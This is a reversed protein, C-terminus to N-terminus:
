GDFVGLALDALMRGHSGSDTVLGAVLEGGSAPEFGAFQFDHLELWARARAPTFQARSLRISQIAKPGGGALSGVVAEVGAALEIRRLTGSEFEVPERLRAAHELPFPVGAGRRDIGRWVELERVPFSGLPVRGEFEAGGGPELYALTAHPVFDPHLGDVVVGVAELAALIRGRLDDLPPEFVVSAYAVRADDNDFYALGTLSCTVPGMAALAKTAAARAVEADAPSSCGVYLITVHPPSKLEGPFEDALPYPVRLYIGLRDPAADATIGNAANFAAEVESESYRPAGFVGYRKIEGRSAAAALRHSTISMRAALQQPTRLDTPISPPKPAHTEGPTGLALQETSGAGLALSGLEAVPEDPILDVGAQGAYRPEFSAIAARASARPVEGAFAAKMTELVLTGTGVRIPPAGRGKARTVRDLTLGNQAQGHLAEAAEDESVIAARVQATLADTQLKYIEAREKEGVPDLDGFKVAIRDPAVPFAGGDKAALVLRSFKRVPGFLYTGQYARCSANHTATESDGSGLASPSIGWYKTIPYGWATAVWVMIPQVAGELGSLTRQVYEFDEKSSDVIVAGLKSKILSALRIQEIAEGAGPGFMKATWNHIKWKTIAADDIANTVGRTSRFFSALSDRVGDLVSVANPAPMWLFRDPHIRMGNSMMLLTEAGEGAAALRGSIGDPLIGNVDIIKIYAPQGFREPDEDGIIPGLQYHRRDIVHAWSITQINDFDVPEDLERGDVIGLWVLAHGFQRAGVGGRLLKGALDILERREYDHILETIEAPTRRKALAGDAPDSPTGQVTVDWGPSLADAVILELGRKVVADTGLAERQPDSLPRSYWFLDWFSLDNPGGMGSVLNYLISNGLSTSRRTSSPLQDPSTIPLGSDTFRLLARGASAISQRLM